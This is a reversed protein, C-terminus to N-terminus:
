GNYDILAARGCIVAAGGCSNGGVVRLFIACRM